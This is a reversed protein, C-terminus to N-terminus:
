FQSLISTKKKSNTREAILLNFGVIFHDHLKRAVPLDVYTRSNFLRDLLDVGNQELGIGLGNGYQRIKWIMM